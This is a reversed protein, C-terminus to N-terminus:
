GINQQFICNSNFYINKICQSTFHFTRIIHSEKIGLKKLMTFLILRTKENILWNQWNDYSYCDMSSGVVAFIFEGLKIWNMIVSM